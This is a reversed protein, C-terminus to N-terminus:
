QIVDVSGNNKYNDKERANVQKSAAVVEEILNSVLDKNFPIKNEIAYQNVKTLVWEKKDSGAFNTIGEAAVVFESVVKSVKNLNEAAKKLKVNKTLNAILTFITVLATLITVIEVLFVKIIELM